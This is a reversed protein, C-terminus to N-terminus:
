SHEEAKNYHKSETAAPCVLHSQNRPKIMCCATPIIRYWQVALAQSWSIQQFFIKFSFPTLQGAAKFAHVIKKKNWTHM